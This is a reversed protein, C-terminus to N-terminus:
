RDAKVYGLSEAVREFVNGITGVAQRPGDNRKEWAADAEVEGAERRLREEMGFIRDVVHSWSRSSLVIRRLEAPQDVLARYIVARQSPEPAERDDHKTGSPPYPFGRAWSLERLWNWEPGFKTWLATAERYTTSTYTRM